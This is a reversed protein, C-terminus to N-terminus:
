RAETERRGAARSHGIDVDEAAALEVLPGARGVRQLTGVNGPELGRVSRSPVRAPRGSPTFTLGPSSSQADTPREGVPEADDVSSFVVVVARAPTGIVEVPRGGPPLGTFTIPIGLATDDQAPEIVGFWYTVPRGVRCLLEGPEVEGGEPRGARAGAREGRACAVVPHRRARARRARPRAQSALGGGLIDVHPSEGRRRLLQRARRIGRQGFLTQRELRPMRGLRGRSRGQAGGGPRRGCRRAELRRGCSSSSAARANAWRPKAAAETRSITPGIPM